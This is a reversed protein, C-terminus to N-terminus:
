PTGPTRSCAKGMFDTSSATRRRRLMRSRSSRTAAPGSAGAFPSSDTTTQPPPGVPTSIAPARCSSNSLTMARSKGRFSTAIISTVNTSAASRSSPVNEWRDDPRASRVSVLRPTATTSPM